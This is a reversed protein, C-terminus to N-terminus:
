VKRALVCVSKVGFRESAGRAQESLFEYPNTRQVEVRLGAESLAGQYVEQQAAGGICSAWLDVNGVIGDTLVKETVIDAVAMRGGPKLVRAAERFVRKKDPALNIVGNSIVADFGEDEFPLDEIRGLTFTTRDLAAGGRLQEAKALQQETMDVGHVHGSPGVQAAAVFSDMGSGSGLDLVREGEALDLLDFFYGVGAFSEIAQSPVQDLLEAPYGLREALSRGMEFHYTGHPREAVDQYMKKVKSTLASVDITVPSTM